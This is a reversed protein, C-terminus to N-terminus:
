AADVTPHIKNVVSGMIIIRDTGELRSVISICLWCSQGDPLPMSVYADRDNEDADAIAARVSRNFDGSGLYVPGRQEITFGFKDAWERAGDSVRLYILSEGEKEIQFAIDSMPIGEFVVGPSKDIDIFAARAYYDYEAKSISQDLFTSLEEAKLDQPKSFYFGQILNGGCQRVFELQEKTEVGEVLAITYISHMLQIMYKLIAFAKPNKESDRLFELDIKAANVRLDKLTNLSSMGSGFDDLWVLYGLDELRLIDKRIQPSDSFASETVEIRLLDKPIGYSSVISDIRAPLDCSEFDTRSFNVSVYKNWVSLDQKSLMRCVEKLIHFDLFYSEHAEELVPVFTGPSLFGKEPDNWRALAEFGSCVGSLSAIIPQYYPLIYGRDIAEAFHNQVFTKMDRARDMDDDYVQLGIGTKGRLSDAAYKAMDICARAGSAAGKESVHYVGARLRIYIKGDFSSLRQQIRRMRREYDNRETLLAFHDNERSCPDGPFEMALYEVMAKLIRDGTRFGYEKNLQQFRDLDLFLIYMADTLHIANLTQVFSGVTLAGTLADREEGGEEKEFASTELISGRAIAKSQFLTGDAASIMARVERENQPSGVCYGITVTRGTEADFAKQLEELRGAFDERPMDRTMVLFEDGGYRYARFFTGEYGRCLCDSLSRLLAVSAEEGKEALYSRFGDIDILAACTFSGAFEQMDEIMGTSNSLGTEEDTRGKIYLKRNAEKLEQLISYRDIFSRRRVVSLGICLFIFIFLDYADQWALPLQFIQFIGTFVAGTLSYNIIDRYLPFSSLAPVPLMILMAEIYLSSGAQTSFVSFVGMLQTIMMQGCFINEALQMHDPLLKKLLVPALFLIPLNLLIVLGYVLDPHAFVTSVAVKPQLALGAFGLLGIVVSIACSARAAFANTRVQRELFDRDNKYPNKFLQRRGM